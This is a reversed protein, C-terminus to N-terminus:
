EGKFCDSSECRIEEVRSIKGDKDATFVREYSESPFAQSAIRGGHM